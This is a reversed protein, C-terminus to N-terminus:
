FLRLAKKKPSFSFVNEQQKHLKNIICGLISINREFHQLLEAFGNVEHFARNLYQNYRLKEPPNKKSM